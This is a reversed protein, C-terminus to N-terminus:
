EYNICTFALEGLVRGGVEVEAPPQPCLFSWWEPLGQSGASALSSRFLDSARTGAGASWRRTPRLAKAGVCSNVSRLM